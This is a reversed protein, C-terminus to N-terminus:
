MWELPRPGSLHYDEWAIGTGLGFSGSQERHRKAASFFLDAIEDDTPMEKLIKACPLPDESHMYCWWFVAKIRRELSLGRHDRLMNRLPANVGGEIKNNTAPLPGDKTLDPDLYTFLVQKNILRNLANRAKVLRQHTFVKRGDIISQEALFEAWYLCWDRYNETWMNAQYLSRICLLEKALGYLEVGAALRPRSTTQRRIQRFIHFTCRQVRTDPWIVRRAKEFGSGGDCVVVEPPAIKSLLAAWAQANESKAVYWGVVYCDSRAILVVTNRSLYIGDVYIVRHIEGTTPALPWINWLHSTRRRFSRGQGSMDSQRKRSLLWDLFEQLHKAENDIKHVKSANCVM